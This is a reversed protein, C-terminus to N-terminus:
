SRAYKPYLKIGIGFLGLAYVFVLTLNLWLEPSLLSMQNILIDQFIVVIIRTPLWSVYPILVPAVYELPFFAGSLMMLPLIIIWVGGGAAEPTKFIIASVLALSNIFLSSVIVALLCGMILSIIDLFVPHFGFLSLVAIGIVFQIMVFIGNSVLHGGLIDSSKLRSSELRKLLGEKRESTLIIVAGALSSLMGYMVYGPTGLTLQNITEGTISDNTYDILVAAPNYNIIGSVINQLMSSIIDKTIKETSDRFFIKVPITPEPGTGNIYLEFGDPFVIYADITKEELDIKASDNSDYLKLEFSDIDTMFDYVLTLNYTPHEMNNASTTDLDVWGIKYVYGGSDSILGGFLVGMMSYFFVPVLLIFLFNKKDRFVTKLNKVAIDWYKPM